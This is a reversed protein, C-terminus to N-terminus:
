IAEAEEAFRIDVFAELDIKQSMANIKKTLYTQILDLDELVPLLEGYSVRDKPKTLVLKIVDVDQNLFEAGIAAAADSNEEIFKGSAVINNVFEQVGDPYKNIIDEKIVVVCCPHNPWIDKSLAFEQGYGATVVETGYPEAVIFGGILAKEDWKMIQPIQSPAVVELMVDKGLGVTLGSECLMRAFIMNHVSLSHPILVIKGKFDQITKINARSNKIIISGSKHGLSILKIKAGSHFLEMALPALIFAADIEENKLATALPNWGIFFETKLDFHNSTVEGSQLKARTVGLVLHDTIRIHGVRLVPKQGM